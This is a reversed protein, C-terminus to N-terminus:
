NKAQYWIFDVFILINFVKILNEKITLDPFVTNHYKFYRM